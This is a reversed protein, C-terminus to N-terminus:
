EKRRLEAELRDIRDLLDLVVGVAAYNLSLGARLRQIRAAAAPASPAFWLEGRADRVADVLGLAVLRRLLDPHLGAHRATAELSIRPPRALPYRVRVRQAERVAGTTPRTSM